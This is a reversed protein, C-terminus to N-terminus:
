KPGVLILGDGGIGTHRHSLQQALQSLQQDDLDRIYHERWTDVYVYDNGCGHLKTFQLSSM